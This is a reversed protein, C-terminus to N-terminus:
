IFWKSLRAIADEHSLSEGKASAERGQQIKYLIYLREIAEPLAGKDPLDKLADLVREKSIETTIALM